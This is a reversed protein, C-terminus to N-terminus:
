LEGRFISDSIFIVSEYRELARNASILKKFIKTTEINQQLPVKIM